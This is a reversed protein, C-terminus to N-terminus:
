HGAAAELVATFERKSAAWGYKEAKVHAGQGLHSRLTADILLDGIRRIMEDRDDVLLGSSKDDISETTGGASRYAVTPVGHSGAEGIVLGWGEKISPLAMVWAEALLEHKAQQEVHGHFTVRDAVGTQAAYKVLEDAWWGEGIVDLTLNPLRDTLAAVADIAHEVQKHPVLRGLVVLRPTASARSTVPPPPETGNRVVSIREADVGLEVLEHRTSESVAVYRSHRYMRPSLAREIWWGVRGILGPYVVPWQERHVHHVLVVIRKRTAWRTFFPLGNQVDVVLDVPGYRRLLLRAFTHAYVDLKSGRRVFRVGDVMEDAPAAPHAACAITVDHGRDALGRAMTEVYLESGGGEPNRVDRWNCFLIHM